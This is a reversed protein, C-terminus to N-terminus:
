LDRDRAVSSRPPPDAGWTFASDIVRSKPMGAASDRRDFSLDEQKHGVRTDSIRTAGNRDFGANAQRLPRAAAQSPQLSTRAGSRLPWVSSIRLTPGSPGGTLLWALGHETQEPLLVRVTERKGSPDFLCLEVKEAHESFLAFNVGEGDWASGLPYPKGPWVIPKQEQNAM